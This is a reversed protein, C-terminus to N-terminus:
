YKTKRITKPQKRDEWKEYHVMTVVSLPDTDINECDKPISHDSVIEGPSNGLVLYLWYKQDDKKVYLHSEDCAILDDIFKNIKGDFKFEYEGNNGEILEFGADQLDKLLSRTEPKWDNIEREM